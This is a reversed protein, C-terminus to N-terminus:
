TRKITNIRITQCIQNSPYSYAIKVFTLNMTVITSVTATTDLMIMRATAYTGLKSTLAFEEM